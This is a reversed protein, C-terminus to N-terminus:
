HIASSIRGWVYVQDYRDQQVPYVFEQTTKKRERNRDREQASKLKSQQTISLKHPDKYQSDLM